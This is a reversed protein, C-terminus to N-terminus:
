YFFVQLDKNEQIYQELCIMEDKILAKLKHAGPILDGDNDVHNKVEETEASVFYSLALALLIAVSFKM